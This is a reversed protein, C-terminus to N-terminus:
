RFQSPLNPSSPIYTLSRSYLSLDDQSVAAAGGRPAPAGRAGRIPLGTPPRRHQSAVATPSPNLLPMSPDNVLSSSASGPVSMPHTHALSPISENTAVAIVHRHEIAKYEFKRAVLAFALINLSLIVAMLLFFLDLRGQNLDRPLWQTGTLEVSLGQVAATLGGALYSGIGTSLLQLAMSCSRMVDPAQDYFFELQGISAWVESAGVLLYAPAQWYISLPPLSRCGFPGEGSSLTDACTHVRQLRWFEIGAAWLMSLVAIAMGWGIRSLLSMRIGKRKMWPELVKDYVPILAIISATNFLSMSASPLEFTQGGPLTIDRAMITGQQVFFMGMMTYITWYLMTTFFVPMLRVVMKVEEVQKPSYGALGEAHMVVGQSTQWETIAEDMWVFSKSSSIPVADHRPNCAPSSTDISGRRPSLKSALGGELGGNQLKGLMANKYMDSGHASGSDPAPDGVAMGAGGTRKSRRPLHMLDLLSGAAAAPAPDSPAPHDASRGGGTRECWRPPHVTGDGVRSGSVNSHSNKLAAMMVKAVRAMPSETPPMHRYLSRGGLFCFVALLMAVGPVAFGVTWSVSDQIYVVVTCALLSGINIALYFFNFFSEKEKRDQPDNERFQDAGFASVNPKIGGTGVAITGLAIMLAAKQAGSAEEGPAPICFISTGTLLVLGVLYVCSFVLITTYRGWRSDALYAGLLPTVYCTGEFISVQIAATAPDGGMVQTVYTVLNTALGYFALRECFENGLIFPCVTLLTSRQKEVAPVPELLPLRQEDGAKRSTGVDGSM